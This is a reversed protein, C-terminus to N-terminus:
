GSSGSVFALVALGLLVLAFRLKKLKPRRAPRSPGPPAPLSPQEGAGPGGGRRERRRQSGSARRRSATRMAGADRRGDDASDHRPRRGHSADTESRHHRDRPAARRRAVRTSGRMAIVRHVLPPSGAAAPRTLRANAGHRVGGGSGGGPALQRARLRRRRAARPGARRAARRRPPRQPHLEADVRGRGVDVEPVRHHQSLSRSNWSAPCM